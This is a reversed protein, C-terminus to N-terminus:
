IDSSTQDQETRIGIFYSFRLRCRFGSCLTYTMESHSHSINDSWEPYLIEHSVFIAKKHYKKQKKSSFETKNISTFSPNPDILFSVTSRYTIGWYKVLVRTELRRGKV